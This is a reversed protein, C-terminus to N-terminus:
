RIQATLGARAREELDAALKAHHTWQVLEVMVGRTVVVEVLAVSVSFGGWADPMTDHLLTAWRGGHLGHPGVRVGPLCRKM